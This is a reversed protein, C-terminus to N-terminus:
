FSIRNIWGGSSMRGVKRHERHDIENESELKSKINTHCSSVELTNLVHTVIHDTSLEDVIGFSDQRDNLQSASQSMIQTKTTPYMDSSSCISPFSLQSSEFYVEDAIWDTRSHDSKLPQSSQSVAYVSHIPNQQFISNPSICENRSMAIAIRDTVDTTNIDKNAKEDIQVANQNERPAQHSEAGISLLNLNKHPDHHNDAVDSSPNLNELNDKSGCSPNLMDKAFERSEAKSAESDFSKSATNNSSPVPISELSSVVLTTSTVDEECEETDFIKTDVSAIAPHSSNSVNSISRSIPASLYEVVPNSLVDNHSETSCLSSGHVLNDTHNLVYARSTDSHNCDRSSKSVSSSNRCLNRVSMGKLALMRKNTLVSQTSPKHDMKADEGSESATNHKTMAFVQRLDKVPLAHESSDYSSEATSSDSNDEELMDVNHELSRGRNQESKSITTENSTETALSLNSASKGINLRGRMYFSEQLNLQVMHLRDLKKDQDQQHQPQGVSCELKELSHSSNFRRVSKGRKAYKTRLDDTSMPNPLRPFALMNTAQDDCGVDEYETHKPISNEIHEDDSVKSTERANQSMKAESKVNEEKITKPHNATHLSTADNKKSLRSENTGGSMIELQLQAVQLSLRAILEDKDVDSAFIPHIEEETAALVNEEEAIITTSDSTYSSEDSESEDEDLMERVLGFDLSRDCFSPAVTAKEKVSLLQHKLCGQSKFSSSSISLAELKESTTSQKWDAEKPNRAPITQGASKAYEVPNSSFKSSVKSSCQM